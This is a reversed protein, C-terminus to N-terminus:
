GGALRFAVMEEGNRVLLRDGVMVPHNWTKGSVAPRRALERFGDPKAAVLALEGLESIVLLLDQDPLLLMQGHGYRGGKWKRAGDALDIAALIGGDFGYAHGEHVVFDNFYPKLNRSTWREEVKWSAGDRAVALRRTGGDQTTSVLVDGDATLAPQVIPYGPWAHQWLVKGDVPAVSVLGDKNLSLVQPVGDITILQPSSYSVGGPAGTWRPAGTDRDYAVLTGSAAVIVLGDVVLPSSSFGWDPVKAGADTGANRSWVLKGDAAELVNVLGTAGFSYVRGEHLTPTGRPGAGANSEWFRAADRHSWVPEGTTADYCAVVEDEGRQEQTFLYNGHVAFSSWGPGIARRWLEAPPRASWDTAITVGPVASDRRAGRFTPWEAGGSAVAAVAGRQTARKGEQALLREEPSQTWRWALDQDFDATFGGTKVLNWVGAGLLLAAAMTVWRAPGVVKRTAAAWAVLAFSATPLALIFFLLGMAGKSISPDVTFFSALLGVAMLAVGGLREVWRARSLFLWWLVILLGGVLGSMVSVALADPYFLPLVFRLFLVVVVLAVGPWLRLPPRLSHAAPSNPM